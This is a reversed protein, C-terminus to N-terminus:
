PQKFAKGLEIRNTNGIERVEVLEKAQLKQLTRSLTSKPLGTRVHLTRQTIGNEKLLEEMVRKENEGLFRLLEQQGSDRKPEITEGTKASSELPVVKKQLTRKSYAYYGIGVLVALGALALLWSNNSQTASAPEFSYQAKLVSAKVAQWELEIKGKGSFVSATPEFSFLRTSEPFTLRVHREQATGLLNNKLEFFWNREQKSTLKDSEYEITVGYQGSAMRPQFRAKNGNLQFQLPGQADFVRLNQLDLVLIEISQQRISDLSLLQQVSAHGNENLSINLIELNLQAQATGALLLFGLLVTVRM